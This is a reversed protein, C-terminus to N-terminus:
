LSILRNKRHRLHLWLQCESESSRRLVSRRLGQAESASNAKM